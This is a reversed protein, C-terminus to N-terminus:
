QSCARYFVRDPTVPRAGLIVTDTQVSTLNTLNRWSILDASTEIRYSLGTPGELSLLLMGTSANPTLTLNIIPGSELIAGFYGVAVFHGDGYAIALLQNRTASPRGVWNVGDASTLITGITFNGGVGVAVFQGNGYAVAALWEGGRRLWSVGDSSTIIIGDKVGVAVFQGNGYAISLLLDQTGSQRQIWNTGEASTVVAGFGGVAVFRGNGYTIGNLGNTTGSERPTWSVGDASTLIAGSGDAYSSGVAVFQGDGYTVARLSSQTGSPRQTWNTGDVSSVIIDGVAVFQGNGYTIAWLESQTGSQRQIWNTGHASSVIIDGVAVFQGHGYTIGNLTTGTPLPNRWTWADLPDALGIEAFILLGFAASLKFANMIKNRNSKRGTPEILISSHKM